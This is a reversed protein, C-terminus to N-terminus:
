EKYKALARKYMDSLANKIDKASPRADPQQDWCRIMLNRYEDSM